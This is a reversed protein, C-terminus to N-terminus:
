QIFVLRAPGQRACPVILDSSRHLPTAYVEDVSAGVRMMMMVMMMMMMMMMVMMMVITAMTTVMMMTVKTQKKRHNEYTKM